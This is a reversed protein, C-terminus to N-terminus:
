RTVSEDTKDSKATRQEVVLRDRIDIAQPAYSSNLPGHEAICQTLRALKTEVTDEEAPGMGPAAGWNIRTGYSARLEYTFYKLPHRYEAYTGPVIDVLSLQEWVGALAV